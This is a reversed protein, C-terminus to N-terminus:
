RSSESSYATFPTVRVIPSPSNTATRPLFPLPFDVRAFSIFARRTGVDPLASTNPMSVDSGFFVKSIRLLAPM